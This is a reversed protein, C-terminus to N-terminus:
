RRRSASVVRGAVSQVKSWTTQGSRVGIEGITKGSARYAMSTTRGIVRLRDPNVRALGAITEETIGHVVYEQSPVEQLNEFPM